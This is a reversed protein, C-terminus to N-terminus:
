IPGKQYFPRVIKKVKESIGSKEMIDEIQETSVELSQFLRVPDYKLLNESLGLIRNLFGRSKKEELLDVRKKRWNAGFFFYFVCGVLSFLTTTFIWAVISESSKGSVLVVILFVIYILM